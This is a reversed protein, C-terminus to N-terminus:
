DRGIDRRGDDLTRRRSREARKGVAQKKGCEASEKGAGMAPSQGEAGNERM